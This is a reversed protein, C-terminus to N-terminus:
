ASPTEVSSQFPDFSSDKISSIPLPRVKGGPRIALGFEATAASTKRDLLDVFQVQVPNFLAPLLYSCFGKRM